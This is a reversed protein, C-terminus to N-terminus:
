RTPASDPITDIKRTSDPQHAIAGHTLPVWEEEMGELLKMFYRKWEKKNINNEVGEKRGRRKNIYRWVETEDKLNRLQQEEEEKKKKSKEEMYLNVRKKEEMDEERSAKGRRWKKYTRV